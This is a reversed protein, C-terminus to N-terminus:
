VLDSILRFRDSNCSHLVSAEPVAVQQNASSEFRGDLM